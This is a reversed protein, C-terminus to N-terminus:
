AGGGGHTMENIRPTNINHYRMVGARSRVLHLFTGVLASGVLLAGLSGVLGM